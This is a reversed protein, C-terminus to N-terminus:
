DFVIAAGLALALWFAAETGLWFAAEVWARKQAKIIRRIEDLMANCPSAEHTNKQNDGTWMTRNAWNPAPM